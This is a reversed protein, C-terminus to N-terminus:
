REDEVRQIEKEVKWDERDKETTLEDEFSGYERKMKKYARQVDMVEELVDDMWEEFDRFNKAHVMPDYGDLKDAITSAADWLQDKAIDWQHQRKENIIM